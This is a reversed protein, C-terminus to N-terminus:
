SKISLKGNEIPLKGNEIPLKNHSMTSSQAFHFGKWEFRCSGMSKIRWTEVNRITM